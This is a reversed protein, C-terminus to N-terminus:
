CPWIFVGDNNQWKESETLSTHNLSKVLDSLVLVWGGSNSLTKTGLEDHM